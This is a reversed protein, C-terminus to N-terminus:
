HSYISMSWEGILQESDFIKFKLAVGDSGSTVNQLRFWFTNTEENGLTPRNISIVLKDGSPHSNDVVLEAHPIVALKEILPQLAQLEIRAHSLNAETKSAIGFHLEGGHFDHIKLDQGLVGDVGPAHIVIDEAKLTGLTRSGDKGKGTPKVPPSVPGGKPKPPTVVPQTVDTVAPAPGLPAPTTSTTESTKKERHRTLRLVESLSIGVLGFVLFSVVARVYFRDSTFYDWMFVKGYMWATAICFCTRAATFLKFDDGLLTFGAGILVAVGLGLPLWDFIYELIVRM